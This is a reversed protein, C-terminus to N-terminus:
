QRVPGPTLQYIEMCYKIGDAACRVGEFHAEAGTMQEYGIASEGCLDYYLEVQDKICQDLREDAFSACGFLVLAILIFKNM